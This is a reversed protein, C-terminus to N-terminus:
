RGGAANHLDTAAFSVAAKAEDVVAGMGFFEHTVGYFERYHVRIGADRLRDAYRRGETLLPDIQAAIITAPPLGSLSKARLPSAYPNAGAASDPLYYKWFWQMMARNLPKAHVNERYSATDFAYNTVPYVLVQYIPMQQHKDRAMLAVVTALNGGASEGAVAVTRPEGNIKSANKMAWRTAAYADQAAAPFKNEPAQRYAVSVVVYGAANALARASSDYTNLGAIVWGGGHFYVLVPFPGSGAPTYVRIPIPGAPGPIKMNVIGAVPMPATSMGENRLVVKVANAPTPQQRAQEPTLFEIPKGGLSGLATLVKQM